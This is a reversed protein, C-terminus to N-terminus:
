KSSKEKRKKTKKDRKSGRRSSNSNGHNAYQIKPSRQVQAKEDDSIGNGAEVDVPDLFGVKRRLRNEIRNMYRVSLVIGVILLLCTIGLAITVIICDIM